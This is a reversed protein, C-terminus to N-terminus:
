MRPRTIAALTTEITRSDFGDAKGKKRAVARALDSLSLIGVLRGEANVVPLRRIQHTELRKSVVDASDRPDCVHLQRSMISGVDITALPEGRTYAAMCIDRDTLMGIVRGEDDIVPVCGCDREWMIQAAVNLMDEARCAGVDKTMLEEIYMGRNLQLRRAESIEAIEAAVRTPVLSMKGRPAM